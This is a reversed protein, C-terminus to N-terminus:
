CEDHGCSPYRVWFIFRSKSDKVNDVEVTLIERLRPTQNSSSHLRRKRSPWTGESVQATKATEKRSHVFVLLRDLVRKMVYKLERSPLAQNGKEGTIGIFQQQLGCPRMSISFFPHFTAVDEYNLGVYEATQELHRITRAVISEL